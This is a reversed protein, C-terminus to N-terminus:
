RPTRLGGEREMSGPGPPVFRYGSRRVTQLIRPQSPDDEIQRRIRHVHETVTAPSQWETSSGWVLQLLEDRGFVRGPEAALLALLQFQRSTLEVPTGRLRVERTRLDVVLTGYDLVATNAPRSRRLVSTVRAALERSSFPKPLYDDAGAELARVRDDAGSWAAVVIVAVGQERWPRVAEVDDADLDLVVLDPLPSTTSPSAGPGTTVLQYGAHALAREVGARVEPDEEILLIRHPHDM